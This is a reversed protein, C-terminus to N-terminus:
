DYWDYLSFHSPSAPFLRAGFVGKLGSSLQSQLNLRAATFGALPTDPKYEIETGLFGNLEVPAAFAAGVLVLCLISAFLLKKM